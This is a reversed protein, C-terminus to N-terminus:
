ILRHSSRNPQARILFVSARLYRQGLYFGHITAWTQSTLFGSLQIKGSQLVTYGEEIVEMNGNDFYRLSRTFFRSFCM